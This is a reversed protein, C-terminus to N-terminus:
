QSIPWINSLFDWFHLDDSVTVHCRVPFLARCLNLYKCFLSILIYFVHLSQNMLLPPRQKIFLTAYLSICPCFFKSLNTASYYRHTLKFYLIAKLFHFSHHSYFFFFFFVLWYQIPWQYDILPQAPQKQPIRHKQSQPRLVVVFFSKNAKAKLETCFSSFVTSRVHPNPLLFFLCFLFLNYATSELHLSLPGHILERIHWNRVICGWVELMEPPNASSSVTMSSIPFFFALVKRETQAALYTM